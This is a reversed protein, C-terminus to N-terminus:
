VIAGCILLAGALVRVAKLRLWPAWVYFSYIMVVPFVLYFTHSAPGKISFAFAAALLALTALTVRRIAPWDAADRRLLAGVILLCTQAAGLVGAFVAFPAVMPHAKLFAEPGGPLFRP